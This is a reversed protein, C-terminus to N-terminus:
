ARTLAGTATEIATEITDATFNLKAAKGVMEVDQLRGFKEDLPAAVM